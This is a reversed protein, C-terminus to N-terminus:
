VFLWQVLAFIPLLICLSWGMYGVFSPMPVHYNKAISAVMLNPANGIYTTAGFFVTGLSIAILIPSLMLEDASLGSVKFFMLYTPANDLFASLGGSFWFYDSPSFTKIPLKKIEVMVPILTVFIAAFLKAVELFPEWRGEHGIRQQSPRLLLSFCGIGIIGFDRILSDFTLFLSGIQLGEKTEWFGSLAVLFVVILILVFHIKGNISLHFSIPDIAEKKYYISDIIWFIILLLSMIVFFPGKLNLLPWFFSVGNLFGLFLPPDGLPSLVGGINSVMFIFFVVLHTKHARTQNFKLFPRIFLISAGATGIINSFLAGTILFLANNRTSPTGAIHITMGSSVVYLAFILAVFPLYEKLATYLLHTQIWDSSYNGSLLIITIVSWFASVKGYNMHWFKPTILPLMSMSLLQGIFPIFFAM